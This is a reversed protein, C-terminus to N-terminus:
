TNGKNAFANLITVTNNTTLSRLIMTSNYNRSDFENIVLAEFGYRIPSVYQFWSIWAQLNGSNSFQGGFLILPMMIIPAIAVASEEKDFLSSVFYGLSVSCEAVLFLILYFYFFQSAAITLGIKFYVIVSFLMPAIIVAPADILIKAVYYPIIAYMKNAQERLFIPREIQFTLLSSMM